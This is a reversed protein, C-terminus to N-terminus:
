KKGKGFLLIIPALFLWLLLELVPKSFTIFLSILMAFIYAWWPPRRKGYDADEKILFPNRRFFLDLDASEHLFKRYAYGFDDEHKYAPMEMPHLRYADYSAQNVSKRKKFLTSFFIGWFWGLYHWIFARFYGFELLTGKRLDCYQQAHFVEHVLTTLTNFDDSKYERFYVYITSRSYAGPLATAIAFSHLMYWPMGDYFRINKPDITPYMLALLRQDRESLWIRRPFLGRYLQRLRSLLGSGM